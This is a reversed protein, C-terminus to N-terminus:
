FLIGRDTVIMNIGTSDTKVNQEFKEGSSAVKQLENCSKMALKGKKSGIAIKPLEDGSKM